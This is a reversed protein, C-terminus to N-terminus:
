SWGAAAAAGLVVHRGLTRFDGRGSGRSQQDPGSSKTPWRAASPLSPLLDGALSRHVPSVRAEDPAQLTLKIAKRLLHAWCKQAQAFNAYVAADDSIVLGAFTELDLLQKLTDANKRVGLVPRAGERVPFGVRQQHELENRQHARDALQGSRRDGNGSYLEDYSTQVFERHCYRTIARSVATILSALITQNPSALTNNEMARTLTILDYAPQFLYQDAYGTGSTGSANTVTIDVVGASAAPTVATLQTASSAIFSAAATNGFNVATTGSFNTGTVTVTTGGTVPGSTPSVATVTPAPM